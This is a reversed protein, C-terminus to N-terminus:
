HGYSIVRSVQWSDGTKKWIMVFPFDGCDDKGNEKHCFRHTGLEIAGFDKIPYVRLTNPTLSRKIDPMNAFMRAFDKRTQEWNTLGSSDDYFEIDDTFLSMLLEVDHANFADFMKRDMKTITESLDISDSDAFTLPATLAIFALVFSLKMISNLAEPTKAHLASCSSIPM